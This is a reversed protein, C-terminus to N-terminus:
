RRVGGAAAQAPIGFEAYLEPSLLPMLDETFSLGLSSPLFTYPWINGCLRDATERRLYSAYGILFDCVKDLFAHVSEPESYMAMLLEEQNMILGATNLVGQMDPSRLWLSDTELRASLAKWLRVGHAGDLAPDDVPKPMLALAEEIERAAPDIFLNGGTSDFRATGGWYKATSVTGFDAFLYPMQAGPLAAMRRLHEPARELIVADDFTQRYGAEWTLVSILCRGEGGWFRTIRALTRHYREEGYLHLLQDM